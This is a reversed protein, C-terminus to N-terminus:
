IHIVPARADEELRLLKEKLPDVLENRLEVKRKGCKAHCKKRECNDKSHEKICRDDCQKIINEILKEQRRLQSRVSMMEDFIPENRMEIYDHKLKEFILHLIIDKILGKLGEPDIYDVPNNKVYSYLNIGGELGIPDSRLYRGLTPDYFRHWNYHLGTETDFYQGPFRLPNTVTSAANVAAEGFSSYKASWVVAGNVATMKQPTGLHDNHYFYYNDGEKMFLPDTTWTSGPKYGYTKIETGTADYEGILGEDSYNFYTRVGSVEKWLRRGFPDYYYSAIM